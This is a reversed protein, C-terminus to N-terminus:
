LVVFHANTSLRETTGSEKAVGHVTAWWAGRDIPNELCFCQLPNGNELPDERGLFWVWAEQMEQM